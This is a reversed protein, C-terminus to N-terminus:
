NGKYRRDRAPFLLAGALAIGAIKKKYKNM